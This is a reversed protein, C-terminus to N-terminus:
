SIEKIIQDIIKITSNPGDTSFSRNLPKLKEYLHYDNGGIECRDGIFYLRYEDCYHNLAYTKDWGIPYIDISTSGGLSITVGGGASDIRKSLNKIMDNRIHHRKDLLIFREREDDNANRGIPCLNILSGRNSIFHGTLTMDPYDGWQLITRYFTDLCYRILQGFKKEGIHNKMDCLVINEYENTHFNYKYLQTGNCPMIEILDAFETHVLENGIQEMVYDFGSGSVIGIKSFSSLEELKNLMENSVIQRPETLTGDMDFLVVNM